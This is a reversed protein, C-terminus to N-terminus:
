NIIRCYQAIEKISCIISSERSETPFPTKENPYWALRYEAQESFNTTQNYNKEPKLFAPHINHYKEYQSHHFDKTPVYNCKGSSFSIPKFHCSISNIFRQALVTIFANVNYIEVCCDYKKTVSANKDLSFCAIFANVETALRFGGNIVAKGEGKFINLAQEHFSNSPGKIIQGSQIELKESSSFSHKGETPDGIGKLEHKRYGGLTGIKIIGDKIFSEGHVRECHKYIKDPLEYLAM